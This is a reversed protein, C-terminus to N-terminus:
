QLYSGRTPVLRLFEPERKALLLLKAFDRSVQMLRLVKELDRDAEGVSGHRVVEIYGDQDQRCPLLAFRNLESSHVFSGMSRGDICGEISRVLEHVTALVSRSIGLGFEFLWVSFCAPSQTQAIRYSSLPMILWPQVAGLVELLLVDEGEEIMTEVVAKRATRWTQGEYFRELAEHRGMGDFSRFWVFQDPDELSRFQACVHIGAVRQAEALGEDFHRVLDRARGPQAVYRRLEVLRPELTMQAM